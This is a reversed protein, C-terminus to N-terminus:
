AASTADHYSDAYVTAGSSRGLYKILDAACLHQIGALAGQWDNNQFNFDPEVTLTSAISCPFSQAAHSMAHQTIQKRQAHAAAASCTHQDKARAGTSTGHVARLAETCVDAAATIFWSAM